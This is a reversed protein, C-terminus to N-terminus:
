RRWRWCGSSRRPGRGCRPIPRPSPEHRASTPPMPPPRRNARDVAEGVVDICDDREGVAPRDRDAPTSRVEVQGAGRELLQRHVRELLDEVEQRVRVDREDQERDPEVPQQELELVGVEHGPMRPASAITRANMPNPLRGSLTPPRSSIRSATTRKPRSSVTVLWPSSPAPPSTQKASPADARNVCGPSGNSGSAATAGPDDDRRRHGGPEEKASM